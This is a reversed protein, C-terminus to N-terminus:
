ARAALDAAAKALQEVTEKRYNIAKAYLAVYREASHAWSFSEALRMGRRQLAQWSAARRYLRLARRV